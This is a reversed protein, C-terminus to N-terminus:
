YIDAVRLFPKAMYGIDSLDIPDSDTYPYAVGGPGVLAVSPTKFLESDETAFISLNQYRRSIIKAQEDLAGSILSGGVSWAIASAGSRVLEDFQSWDGDIDPVMGEYCIVIGWIRGNLTFTTPEFPGPTFVKPESIPFLVHKDYSALVRGETGFVIESIRKTGNELRTFINSAITISHNKALCSLSVQIPSITENGEVCPVTGVVNETFVDFTDPYTPNGFLGYGEPLVLLDVNLKAAEQIVQRYVRLNCQSYEKEKCNRWKTPAHNALTAVRDADGEKPLLSLLIWSLFLISRQM